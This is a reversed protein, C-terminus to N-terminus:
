CHLAPWQNQQRIKAATDRAMNFKEVAGVYEDIQEELARERQQDPLDQMQIAGVMLSDLAADRRYGAKELAEAAGARARATQTVERGWQELCAQQADDERQEASSQIAIVILVALFMLVVGLGQWKEKM